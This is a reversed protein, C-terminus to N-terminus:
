LLGGRFYLYLVEMFFCNYDRIYIYFCNHSAIIIGYIYIYFCNHSVIIIGYIYLSISVIIYFMQEAEDEAERMILQARPIFSALAHTRGPLMPLMPLMPSM